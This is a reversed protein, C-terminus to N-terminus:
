NWEGCDPCKGVWKMQASSCATCVFQTRPKAATKSMVNDGPAFARQRISCIHSSYRAIPM